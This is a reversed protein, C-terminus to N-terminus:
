FLDEDDDSPVLEQGFDREVKEWCRTYEKLIWNTQVQGISLGNEGFVEVFCRPSVTYYLCNFNLIDDDIDKCDFTKARLKEERM